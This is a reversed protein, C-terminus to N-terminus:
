LFAMILGLLSLASCPLALSAAAGHSKKTASPSTSSVSNVLTTTSPQKSVESSENQASSTSDSDDAPVTITLIHNGNTTTFVHGISGISTQVSQKAVPVTVPAIVLTETTQSPKGDPGIITTGAKEIPVTVVISTPAVISVPTTVGPPLILSGSAEQETFPSAVINATSSPIILGGTASTETFVSFFIQPSATSTPTDLTEGPSEIFPTLTPLDTTTPTDLTGASNETHVTFTIISITPQVLSTAAIKTSSTIPPFDLSTASNEIFVSNSPPPSPGPPYSSITANQDGPFNQPAAEVAHSGLSAAVLFSHLRAM